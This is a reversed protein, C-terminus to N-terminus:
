FIKAFLSNIKQNYEFTHDHIALIKGSVYNHLFFLHNTPTIRGLIILALEAVMTYFYVNNLIFTVLLAIKITTLLLYNNKPIKIGLFKKISIFTPDGIRSYTGFKSFPSSIASIFSTIPMGGTLPYLFNPNNDYRIKLSRDLDFTTHYIAQIFVNINSIPVVINEKNKKLFM